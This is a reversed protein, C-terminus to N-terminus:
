SVLPGTPQYQRLVEFMATANAVTYLTDLFFPFSCKHLIVFAQQMASVQHCDFLLCEICSYILSAIVM